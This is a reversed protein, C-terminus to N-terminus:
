RQKSLRSISVSLGIFPLLTFVFGIWAVFLLLLIWISDFAVLLGTSALLLIAFIAAAIGFSKRNRTLMDLKSEVDSFIPTTGKEARFIQYGPGKIVATWGSQEFLAFMDEGTDNELNLNYIYDHAEVQEFRYLIGSMDKLHWGKESMRQLLKMDHEPFLALGNCIRYTNM